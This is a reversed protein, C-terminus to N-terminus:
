GPVLGPAKARPLQGCHARLACPVWDHALKEPINARDTVQFGLRAFFPVARTLAYVCEAETNWARAVLQRVIAAGIGHGRYDARVVLSRVEMRLRSMQRLSGCGALTGDLEAIIWTALTNRIDGASRPLLQGAGVHDAILGMLAAVDTGVATRFSVVPTASTPLFPEFTTASPM